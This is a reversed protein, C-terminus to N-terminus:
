LRVIRRIVSKDNASVKVFYAGQSLGDLNVNHKGALEMQGEVVQETKGLINFIEVKVISPNVLQYELNFSASSPNPKVNVEFLQSQENNGVSGIVVTQASTTACTGDFVTHMVIYIGAAAYTHASNNSTVVTGDGFDWTHSVGTLYSVFGAQLGSTVYVFSADLAVGPQLSLHIPVAIVNNTEDEELFNNYPDIIAVIYYDGNCINPANIEQGSGSGYMDYRGVFIGQGANGCGTVTGLNLNPLMNDTIL